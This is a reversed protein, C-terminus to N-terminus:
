RHSGGTLARPLFPQIGFQAQAVVPVGDLQCAIQALAFRVDHSRQAFFDQQHAFVALDVGNFVAAAVTTRTKRLLRQAEGFVGDGAPNVGKGIAQFVARDAGNEVHRVGLDNSTGADLNIGHLFDLSQDEDEDTVNFRWRQLAIHRRAEEVFVVGNVHGLGVDDFGVPTQAAFAREVRRVVEDVVPGGERYVVAQGHRQAPHWVELMQRIHQVVASGFIAGLAKLAATCVGVHAKFGLDRVFVFGAGRVVGNGHRPAHGFLLQMGQLVRIEFDFHTQPQWAACADCGPGIWANGGAFEEHWAIGVRVVVHLVAGLLDLALFLALCPFGALHADWQPLRGVDVAEGLFVNQRTFCQGLEVVFFGAPVAFRQHAAIQLQQHPAAKGALM